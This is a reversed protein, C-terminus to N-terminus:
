TNYGPVFLVESTGTKAINVYVGTKPCNQIKSLRSAQDQFLVFFSINEFRRIKLVPPLGMSQSCDASFILHQALKKM